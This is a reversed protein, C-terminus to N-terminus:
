LRSNLIKLVNPSTPLIKIGRLILRIIKTSKKKIIKIDKERKLIMHNGGLTYERKIYKDTIPFIDQILFASKRGSPLKCIFLGDNPKHNVQRNIMINRFKNVKSSLPIMWYIKKGKFCGELCFYFPRKGDKNNKLYPDKMDLFYEDKLIYFGNSIIKM